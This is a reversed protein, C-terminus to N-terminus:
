KAICSTGDWKGLNIRTSFVVICNYDPYICKKRDDEDSCSNNHCCSPMPPNTDLWLSGNPLALGKTNFTITTGSGTWNIKYETNKPFSPLLTDEGAGTQLSGDGDPAPNTDEYISYSTSLGTAFHARNRQMARARTNMMDIYIDKIQSEVRYKDRWGEFSFGLAVILIGMIALVVLLEILTFGKNNM